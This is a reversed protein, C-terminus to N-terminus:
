SVWRVFQWLAERVILLMVGIAVLLWGVVRLTVGATQTSPMLLALGLVLFTIGGGLLAVSAMELEM